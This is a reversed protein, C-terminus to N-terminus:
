YIQPCQVWKKSFIQFSLPEIGERKSITTTLSTQVKERKRKRRAPPNKLGEGGKKFAIGRQLITWSTNTTTDSVEVVEMSMLCLLFTLTLESLGWPRERILYTPNKCSIGNFSVCLGRSSM